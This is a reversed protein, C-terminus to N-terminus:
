ICVCACCVAFEEYRLSLYRKPSWNSYKRGEFDFLHTLKGFTKHTGLMAFLAHANEMPTPPENRAKRKQEEERAADGSRILDHRKHHLDFM